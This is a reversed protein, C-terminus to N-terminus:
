RRGTFRCHLYCRWFGDEMAGSPMVAGPDRHPHRTGVDTLNSGPARRLSRKKNEVEKAVSKDLFISDKLIYILIVKIDILDKITYTNQPHFTVLLHYFFDRNGSCFTHKINIICFVLLNILDKPFKIEHKLINVFRYDGESGNDNKRRM